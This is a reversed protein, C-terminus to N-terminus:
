ATAVARTERKRARYAVAKIRNGCSEMGCWQRRM